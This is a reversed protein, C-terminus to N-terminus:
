GPYELPPFFTPSAPTLPNSDRVLCFSKISAFTSPLDFPKIESSYSNKQNKEVLTGCHSKQWFCRQSLM